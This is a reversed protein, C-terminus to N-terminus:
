YPRIGRADSALSFCGSTCSTSVSKPHLPRTEFHPQSPHLSTPPQVSSAADPVMGELALSWSRSNTELSFRLLFVSSKLEVWSVEQILSSGTSALVHNFTVHNAHIIDCFLYAQRYQSPLWSSIAFHNILSIKKLHISSVHHLKCHCHKLESRIKSYLSAASGVLDSSLHGCGTERVTELDSYSKAM